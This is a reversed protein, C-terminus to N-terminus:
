SVVVTPLKQLKRRARAARLRRNGQLNRPSMRVIDGDEFRVVVQGGDARLVSGFVRATGWEAGYVAESWRPGKQSDFYTAPASVHAGASLLQTTQPMLCSLWFHNTAAYTYCRGISGWFWQERVRTTRTCIWNFVSGVIKGTM